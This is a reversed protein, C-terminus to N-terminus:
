APVQFHLLADILIRTAMDADEATVIERPDHSIGGNGCRVFLMGIETIEAMVMADHGAGSALRRVELGARGVADALLAQLRPACAVAASRSLLRMTLAVGRRRAIRDAFALIDHVAAERVADDGARIDLSLECRGPIINVAGDPVQLRGVTGVLGPEHGCRKEVFLVIEAAAAAADHRMAMPVTGAHGAQGSLTLAYRTAGAIATVVGVPLGADLLVPGQEIHVELYGALSAPDRKLAFIGKPEHGAARVADAVTAGAEDSLLLMAPTFRGAIADAGLFPTAFRVGEEESFALIQVHFPLAAGLDHLAALAEIAALIGLRGDYKGGHRVTDYHSGLLVTPAAPDAAAHRGIVNGAADIEAALGAEAMWGRLLAATAQHAPTLYTCTLGETSESHAALRDARALIRRGIEATAGRDAPPLLTMPQGAHHEIWRKQRMFAGGGGDRGAGAASRGRAAATEERYRISRVM